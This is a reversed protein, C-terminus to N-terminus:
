SGSSVMEMFVIGIFFLIWNNQQGTLPALAPFVRVLFHYRCLPFFICNQSVFCSPPFLNFCRNSPFAFLLFLATQQKKQKRQARHQCWPHWGQCQDGVPHLLPYKGWTMKSIILITHEYSTACPLLQSGLCPNEDRHGEEAEAPHAAPLPVNAPASLVWTVRTLASGEPHTRGFVGLLKLCSIRPM